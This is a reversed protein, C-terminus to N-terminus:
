TLEAGNTETVGFNDATLLPINKVSCKRMGSHTVSCTPRLTFMLKTIVVKNKETRETKLYTSRNKMLLYSDKNFHNLDSCRFMERLKKYM